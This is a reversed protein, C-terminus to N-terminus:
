GAVGRMVEDPVCELTKTGDGVDPIIYRSTHTHSKHHLGSPSLNGRVGGGMVTSDEMNSTVGVTYM